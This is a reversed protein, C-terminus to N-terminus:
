EYGAYRRSGHISHRGNYEKNCLTHWLGASLYAIIKPTNHSVSSFPQFSEASIHPLIPCVARSITMHNAEVCAVCDAMVGKGSKTWL